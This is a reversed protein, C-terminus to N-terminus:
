FLFEHKGEKSHIINYKKILLKEQNIKRREFIYHKIGYKKKINMSLSNAKEFDAFANSSLSSTASIGVLDMIILPLKSMDFNIGIYGLGIALFLTAFGSLLFILGDTISNTKQRKRIKFCEEKDKDQIQLQVYDDTMSNLRLYGVLFILGSSLATLGMIESLQEAQLLGNSGLTFGINMGFSTLTGGLGLELQEKISRFKNDYKQLEDNSDM